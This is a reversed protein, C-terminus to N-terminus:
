EDKERTKKGRKMDRYELKQRISSKSTPIGLEEAIITQVARAYAMWKEEKGDWHHKWFYDNPCFVPMESMHM